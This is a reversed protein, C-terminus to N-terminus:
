EMNFLFAKVSKGEKFQVVELSIGAIEKIEKIAPYIVCSKLNKLRKYTGENGGALLDKFENLLFYAEKNKERYFLLLGYLRISFTSRFRFVTKIDLFIRHNNSSKLNTYLDESLRVDIRGNDYEWYDIYRIARKENSLSFSKNWLQSVNEKVIDYASGSTSGTLYCYDSITFSLISRSNSYYSKYFLLHLVKLEVLKLSHLNNVFIEPLQFLTSKEKDIISFPASKILQKGKMSKNGNRSHNITIDNKSPIFYDTRISMLIEDPFRLNIIQEIDNIDFIFWEKKSGEDTCKNQFYHHLLKETKICEKSQFSYLLKGKFPQSNDIESVRKEPTEGRQTVGIKVLYIDKPIYPNGSQYFYVFGENKEILKKLLIVM